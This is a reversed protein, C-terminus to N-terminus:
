HVVYVAGSGPASNSAQDGNVGTAASSETAATIALTDDTLAVGSSGFYDSAEANSAKVYFQQSWSTGARRFVYVAGSTLASNSSQDGNIGRSAGDESGAGVALVDGSLAVRDGFNDGVGTNSAKVYAEQAWVAGSRRFVYVAGSDMATNDAQNGGIGQAASDENNAAVALTDGSLAVSLGFSDAFGTNSAKVYAEQQWTAGTRRFVYVAGSDTATNSAQDGNVGTAASDEEYASVALADGSLALSWGFSDAAGTNSAKVYAEQQWTAGTRRFVYVAGSNSAANSAQNGNVGTAASDEGYAGVALTDGSLAISQGFFDLAETNSAKIYAEQQWTAGTRRFVYVAGSAIASRDFPNGNVGTAASDEEVASVALTDGSLAVSYGFSDGVHTNSAKLYAEQQWTTGVRRFVYVAGASSVSNDSQDGNVGTAASDEGYAGVALTDGSIAVSTGFGDGLGTNSAKAYAYQALLAARRLTLRYSQRWGVRNEVVIDVPNDGLSLAIPASPVGSPVSEGAITLTDGATAVTATVTVSSQLLPLDVVYDTVGPVLAIAPAIGSVAVGALAPGTCTLEIAPDAGAVVGTANRLTCPADPHVLVVTYADGDQLRASFVFAGDQTVTFSELQNDLRLELDVSGLLGAATGRVVFEPVPAADAPDGPSADAPDGPSADAPDGPSADAPDGPSADAPDGPSADAPDGPSADALDGPSADAPDGPSADAPDGPSADAPDGPSADAPDGPSADAPDGSAADAPDMPSLNDGCGAMLVLIALICGGLAPAHRAM